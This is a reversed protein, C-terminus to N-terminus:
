RYGMDPTLPGNYCHDCTQTDLPQGVTFYFDELQGSPDGQFNRVVVEWSEWPKNNYSKGGPLTIASMRPTESCGGGGDGGYYYEAQGPAVCVEVSVDYEEFDRLKTLTCSVQEGPLIGAQCSAVRKSRWYGIATSTALPGHTADPNVWSVELSNRHRAYVAARAAGPLTQRIVPASESCWDSRLGKRHVVDKPTICVRVSVEYHTFDELGSLVCTAPGPVVEIVSCNTAVATQPYLRATAKASVVTGHVSDPNIWSVTLANGQVAQVIISTAKEPSQPLTQRSVPGSVSCWDSPSAIPYAMDTPIVCLEVFVAYMSSPSLGSLTCTAQGKPSGEPRCQAVKKETVTAAEGDLQAIARSTALKGVSLDPITWQVILEQQQIALVAVDKASDPVSTTSCWAAEYDPFPMADRPIVCVEVVIRYDTAHALGSLVCTHPPANMACVSIHTGELIAMAKASALKGLALDPITWSVQLEKTRVALVRVDKAVEPLLPLTNQLGPHSRRRADVGLHTAMRPQMVADDTAITIDNINAVILQCQGCSNASAVRTPVSPLTKIYNTRSYKCAQKIWWWKKVCVQVKVAYKTHDRLDSLTCFDPSSPTGSGKCTAIPRRDMYAIALSSMVHEPNNWQVELSKPRLAYVVVKTAM